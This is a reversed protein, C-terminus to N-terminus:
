QLAKATYGITGLGPVHRHMRLITGRTTIAEEQFQYGDPDALIANATDVLDEVVFSELGFIFHGPYIEDFEDTRKALKAMQDRYSAVTAYAGYPDDPQPGSIGVRMSIIDDGAFLTREKQDLFMCHGSSHGATFILEIKHGGGLDFTYGDPVGVIEYDRFPILDRRDFATWIPEGRADFLKDWADARHLKQLTPVAYAHCYVKEFQCNGLAHDLHPHTNVVILEKGGSLQDCLGKLDGLGFGTDVLMAKEPGVILYMWVDGAGDLSENLIAYLNERLPYVEAYPDVEYVKRGKFHLRLERMFAWCREDVREKSKLRKSKMMSPIPQNETM